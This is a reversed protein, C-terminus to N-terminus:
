AEIVRFDFTTIVVDSTDQTNLVKMKLEDGTVLNIGTTFSANTIGNTMTVEVEQAVVDNLFLGFKMVRSAAASDRRLFISIDIAAKIPRIGVYTLTDTLFTFRENGTSAVITGAIDEYVDVTNIVTVTTNETMAMLGVIYSDIQANNNFFFSGIDEQDMSGAALFDGGATTDIINNTVSVPNIEDNSLIIIGPDLKLFAGSSSPTTANANIIILTQNGQITIQTGTIGLLQTNQFQVGTNELIGNDDCIIGSGWNFIGAERWLVLAGNITGLSDGGQFIGNQVQVLPAPDTTSTIDFFHGGTMTLDIDRIILRGWDGSFLPNTGTLRSTISNSILNSSTIELGAGPTAPQFQIEGLDVDKTFNYRTVNVPKVINGVRVDDFVNITEVDATRNRDISSIETAFPPRYSM